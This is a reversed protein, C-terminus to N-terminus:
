SNQLVAEGRMEDQIMEVNSCHHPILTDVFRGEGAESWFLLVPTILVEWAEQSVVVTTKNAARPKHCSQEVRCKNVGM